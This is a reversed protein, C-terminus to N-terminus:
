ILITLSYDRGIVEELYQTGDALTPYGQVTELIILQFYNSFNIMGHYKRQVPYNSVTPFPFLAEFNMALSPYNDVEEPSFLKLTDHTGIVTIIPIIRGDSHILTREFNKLLSIWDNTNEQNPIGNDYTYDGTHIFVDPDSLRVQELLEEFWDSSRHGHSDGGFALKVSSLSDKFTKFRFIDTAFDPADFKFEYYTDHKLNDLEVTHIKRNLLTAPMNKFYGTKLIWETSGKERYLLNSNVQHDLVKDSTTHFCVVISSTPDNIYSLYLLDQFSEKRASRRRKHNRKNNLLDGLM